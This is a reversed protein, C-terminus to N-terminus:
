ATAAKVTKTKKVKTSASRNVISRALLNVLLTLVFLTLGAASLASRGAELAEGFRLAITGAINAGGPQLIRPSVTFDFSLILAIAITEGLARGLGLMAAGTLGSKSYPLLVTTVMGSKTGGLALAAECYSRPVEALVARSVSAIIPIIMLAVVVGSIFLSSTYIESTKFIPIFGLNDSLFKAVSSLRPQLFFLGWLGFILSPIAALLDLLTVLTKQLFKPAYENVFLATGISIPVALLLAIVSIVVTGYLMSGIGFRPEAEDPLWSFETFFSWGAVRFAPIAEIILFLAILGMVLLSTFAAGTTVGRYIKDARTVPQAINRPEDSSVSLDVLAPQTTISMALDNRNCSESNWSRCSRLTFLM